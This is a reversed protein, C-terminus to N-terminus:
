KPPMSHAESRTSSHLHTAEISRDISV